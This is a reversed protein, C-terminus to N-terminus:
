EVSHDSGGLVISENRGASVLCARSHKVILVVYVLRWEAWRAVFVVIGISSESPMHVACARNPLNRGVGVRDVRCLGELFETTCWGRGRLSHKDVAFFSTCSLRLHM